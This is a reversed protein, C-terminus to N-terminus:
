QHTQFASCTWPSRLLGQRLMGNMYFLLIVFSCQNEEKLIIWIVDSLTSIQQYWFSCSSMKHAGQLTCGLHAQCITLSTSLHDVVPQSHLNQAPRLQWPRFMFAEGVSSVVVALFIFLPGSGRYVCMRTNIRYSVSTCLSLVVTYHLRDWAGVEPLHLRAKCLTSVNQWWDKAQPGKFHLRRRTDCALAQVVTIWRRCGTWKKM